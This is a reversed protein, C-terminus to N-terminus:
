GRPHLFSDRAAHPTRGTIMNQTVIQANFGGSWLMIMLGCFILAFAVPIGIAMSGLLSALFVVITM